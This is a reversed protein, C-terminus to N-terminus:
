FPFSKSFRSKGLELRDAGLNGDDHRRRQSRDFCFQRLTQQAGRETRARLAAQRASDWGVATFADDRANSLSEHFLKATLELRRALPGGDLYEVIRDSVDASLNQLFHGYAYDGSDDDDGAGTGSSIDIVLRPLYMAKALALRRMAAQTLPQIM